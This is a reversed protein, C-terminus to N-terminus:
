FHSRGGIKRDPGNANDISSKFPHVSNAPVGLKVWYHDEFFAM